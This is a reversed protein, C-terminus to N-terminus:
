KRKRQFYSLNYFRTCRRCQRDVSLICIEEWLNCIKKATVLQCRRGLFWHHKDSFFGTNVMQRERRALEKEVLMRFSLSVRLNVLLDRFDLYQFVISIIPKWDELIALDASDMMRVVPLTRFDRRNFQSLSRQEHTVWWTTLDDWEDWTIMTPTQGDYYEKWEADERDKARREKLLHAPTFRFSVARDNEQGNDDM